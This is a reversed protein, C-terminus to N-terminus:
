RNKILIIIDNNDNKLKMIVDLNNKVHINMQKHKFNIM